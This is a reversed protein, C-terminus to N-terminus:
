SADGRSRLSLQAGTVPRTTKATPSVVMATATTARASIGPSATPARRDREAGDDRRGVRDRGRGHQALQPRRM